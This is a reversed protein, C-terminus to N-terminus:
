YKRYGGLYINAEKGLEVEIYKYLYRTNNESEKLYGQNDLKENLKELVNKAEEESNYIGKMNVFEGHGNSNGDNNEVIMYLKKM